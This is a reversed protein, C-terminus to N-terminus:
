VPSSIHYFKRVSEHQRVRGGESERWNIGNEAEERILDTPDRDRTPSRWHHNNVTDFSDEEPRDRSVPYNELFSM